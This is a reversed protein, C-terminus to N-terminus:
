NLESEGALGPSCLCFNFISFTLKSQVQTKGAKWLVSPLPGAGGCPCKWHKAPGWIIFM